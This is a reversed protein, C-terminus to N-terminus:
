SFGSPLGGTITIPSLFRLLDGWPRCPDAGHLFAEVLSRPLISSQATAPLRGRTIKWFPTQPIQERWFVQWRAITRRDAGFFQSLDRVRRPSPGQRMASVLVVVAFLYVKRGLFRVSPPTVRKRCGDRECCFSFRYGYDKPLDEASGRPKRPYNARHLRGGCPCAKERASQALDQDVSLLFSLFTAGRPWEHYM